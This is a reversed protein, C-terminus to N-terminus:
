LDLFTPQLTAAGIEYSLGQLLPPKDNTNQSTVRLLFNGKGEPMGKISLWDYRGHSSLKATRWRGRWGHDTKIEIKANHLQDFKFIANQHGNRAFSFVAQCGRGTAHQEVNNLLGRTNVSCGSLHRLKLWLSYGRLNGKSIQKALNNACNLDGIDHSQSVTGLSESRHGIELQRHCRGSDDKYDLTKTQESEIRGDYEFIRVGYLKPNYQMNAILDIESATGKISLNLNRDIRVNELDERTVLVGTQTQTGILEGGLELETVDGVVEFSLLPFPLVTNFKTIAGIENLVVEPHQPNLHTRLSVQATHPPYWKVAKHTLPTVPEATEFTLTDNPYISFQRDPNASTVNYNRSNIYREGLDRQHDQLEKGEILRQDGNVYHIYARAVNLVSPNRANFGKGILPTKKDETFWREGRNADLIQWGQSLKIEPYEHYFTTVFNSEFGLHEAIKTIARNTHTCCGYGYGAIIELPDTIWIDKRGPSCHHNIDAGLYKWVDLLLQEYNYEKNKDTIRQQKTLSSLFHNYSTLDLGDQAIFRPNLIPSSGTNKIWFSQGPKIKLTPKLATSVLSHDATIENVADPFITGSDIVMLQDVTLTDDINGGNFDIRISHYNGDPLPLELSQTLASIQRKFSDKQDFPQGAIGYFVTLSSYPQSIPLNLKLFKQTVNGSLPFVLYPDNGSITATLKNESVNLIKLDNAYTYDALPLNIVSPSEPQRSLLHWVCYGVIFLAFAFIASRFLKDTITRSM